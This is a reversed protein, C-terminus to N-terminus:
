RRKSIQRSNKVRHSFFHPDLARVLREASPGAFAHLLQEPRDYRLAQFAPRLVFNERGDGRIAAFSRM